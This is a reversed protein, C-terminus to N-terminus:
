TTEITRRDILAGAAFTARDTIGGNDTVNVQDKVDGVSLTFDQIADRGVEIQLREIVQTKFGPASVVVRYMGVEVAAVHYRGVENTVAARELNTAANQISISAGAIAGRSEDFVTGDISSTVQASAAVSELAAILVLARRLMMHRRALGVALRLLK